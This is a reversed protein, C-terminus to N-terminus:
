RYREVPYCFDQCSRKSGAAQRRERIELVEDIFAYVLVSREEYLMVPLIRVNYLIASENRKQKEHM